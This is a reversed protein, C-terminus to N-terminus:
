SAMPRTTWENAQTDALVGRGRRAIAMYLCAGAIWAGLLLRSVPLAYTVPRWLLALVAIAGSAVGAVVGLWVLVRHLVGARSGAASACALFVGIFLVHAPGGALFTLDHLGRLVPTSAVVAPRSLAWTVIASVMLFGSALTGSAFALRVLIAAEEAAREILRTISSVFALLAVALIGLAVALSRMTAANESVFGEITETSAYTSPYGGSPPFGETPVVNAIIFVAGMLALVAAGAGVTFWRERPRSAQEDSGFARIAHLM